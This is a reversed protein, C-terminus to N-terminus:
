SLSVMVQRSIMKCTIELRNSPVKLAFRNSWLLRQRDRSVHASDGILAAAIPLFLRLGWKALFLRIDFDETGRCTFFFLFSYVVPPPCSPCRAFGDTLTSWM